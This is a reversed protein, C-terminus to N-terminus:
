ILTEAAQISADVAPILTDGDIVAQLDAASNTLAIPVHIASVWAAPIQATYIMLLMRRAAPVQATNKMSVTAPARPASM